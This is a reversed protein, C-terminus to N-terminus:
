YVREYGFRFLGGIYTDTNDNSADDFSVVIYALNM